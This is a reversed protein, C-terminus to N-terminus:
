IKKLTLPLTHFNSMLIYMAEIKGVQEWKNWGGQINIELFKGLGWNNGMGIIQYELTCLVVNGRIYM